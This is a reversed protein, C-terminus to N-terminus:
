VDNDGRVNSREQVGQVDPWTLRLRSLREVARMGAVFIQRARQRSVGLSQGIETYTMGDSRMKIAAFHRPRTTRVVELAPRVWKSPLESGIQNWVWLVLNDM